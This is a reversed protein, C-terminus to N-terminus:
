GQLAQQVAQALDTIQNAACCERVWVKCITSWLYSTTQNLTSAAAAIWDHHNVLVMAQELADRTPAEALELRTALHALANNLIDQFVQREPPHNGPLRVCGPVADQDADLVCLARFPLVGQHVLSELTRVVNAPGVDTFSIGTLDVNGQRLMEAVLLGAERDETLVFLEPHVPNDMRNLAFDSSVGYLVNMGGAGRSIFIRAEPPLEELVFASHTSLIVQINRVRAYWLLFHILRRQSRPHLSAEVEDIIVLSHNPVNQLLAVLDLSADEGAGQHFQSYEQGALRVVGVRRAPDIDSQAMRAQQYPRGLISAYQQLMQADLDDTATETATRRAIRAYGVTSDLPLTRSIDQWVVNRNPRQGMRRWRETPKTLTHTTENNGQRISFSLTVNTSQDWATDPFFIGPNFSRDPHSQNRYAVAAAKLVTSKGSGNEGAVVAVPFDFRVEQGTWGRLRTVRLSRLFQPWPQNLM